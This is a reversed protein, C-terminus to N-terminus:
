TNPILFIFIALIKKNEKRGKGYLIFITKALDQKKLLM